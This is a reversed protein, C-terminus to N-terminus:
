SRYLSRSIRFRIYRFFLLLFRFFSEQTILDVLLQRIRDLHKKRPQRPSITRFLLSFIGTRIPPIRPVSKVTSTPLVPLLLSLTFLLPYTCKWERARLILDPIHPNERRILYLVDLLWIYPFRFRHNALHIASILIADETSPIRYSYLDFTRTESRLWLKEHTVPMFRQHSSIDLHLDIYIPFPSLENRTLQLSYQTAPTFGPPFHPFPEYLYGLGSLIKLAPHIHERPILLDIDALSRLGPQPYLGSVIFAIGKLLIPKIGNKEFAPIIRALENLFITNRAISSFYMTKGIERQHYPIHELLHNKKLQYYLLAATGHERTSEWFGIWDINRSEEFFHDSQFHTSNLATTAIKEMLQFAPQTKM